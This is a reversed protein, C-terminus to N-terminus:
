NIFKNMFIQRVKSPIWGGNNWNSDEPETEPFVWPTQPNSYTQEIKASYTSSPQNITKINSEKVHNNKLNPSIFIKQNSSREFKEQETPWPLLEKKM